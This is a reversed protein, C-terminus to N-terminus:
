IIYLIKVKYLKLNMVSFVEHRSRMFLSDTLTQSFFFFSLFFIPLLLSLTFCMHLMNDVPWTCISWKRMPGFIEIWVWIRWELEPMNGPRPRFTYHRGIVPEHGFGSYGLYSIDWSGVLMIGWM